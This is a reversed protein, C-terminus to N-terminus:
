TVYLAGPFKYSLWFSRPWVAQIIFPVSVQLVMAGHLIGRIPPLSQRSEEVLERVRSENSVDCKRVAVNVGINGLELVLDQVAKSTSSSRSVLIIHKAGERALWRILSRGIGGGVVLYSANAHALPPEPAPM